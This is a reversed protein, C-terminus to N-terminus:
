PNDIGLRVARFIFKIRLKKQKILSILNFYILKLFDDDTRHHRLKCRHNAASQFLYMTQFRNQYISTRGRSDAMFGALHSSVNIGIQHRRM